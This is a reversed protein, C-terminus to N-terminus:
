APGQHFSTNWLMRGQQLQLSLNELQDKLRTRQDQLEPTLKDESYPVISRRASLLEERLRACNMSTASSNFNRILEAFEILKADVENFTINAQARTQSESTSVTDAMSAAVSPGGSVDPVNITDPEKRVPGRHPLKTTLVYESYRSSPIIKMKGGRVKPRVSMPTTPDGPVDHHPSGIGDKTVGPGGEADKSAALNRSPMPNGAAASTQEAVTTEGRAPTKDPEADKTMDM